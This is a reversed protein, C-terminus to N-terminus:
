KHAGNIRLSSVSGADLGVKQKQYGNTVESVLKMTYLTTITEDTELDSRTNNICISSCLSCVCVCVSLM